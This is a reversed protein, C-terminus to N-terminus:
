HLDVWAGAARAQVRSDTSNYVLMGDVASLANRQTTTLSPLQVYSQVGRVILPTLITGEVYIGQDSTLTLAIGEAEIYAATPAGLDVKTGVSFYRTAGDYWQVSAASFKGTAADLRLGNANLTVNGAGATLTGDTDIYAQTTPSHTYGQGHQITTLISM